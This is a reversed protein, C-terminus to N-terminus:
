KDSVLFRNYEAWASTVVDGVTRRSYVSVDIWRKGQPTKDKSLHILVQENYRKGYDYWFGSSKLDVKQIAGIWHHEHDAPVPADLNNTPTVTIHGSQSMPVGNLTVFDQKWNGSPMMVGPRFMVTGEGFIDTPSFMDNSAHEDLVLQTDCINIPLHPHLKELGKLVPLVDKEWNLGGLGCGVKTMFLPLAMNEALGVVSGICSAVAIPDAHVKDRGYKHQTFMNVVMLDNDVAIVQVTGLMDKAKNYTECYRVYNEFVLPWKNKVALAAGSGMVGQCNVGHAVIGREVTTIDKNILKIM